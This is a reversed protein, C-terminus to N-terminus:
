PVRAPAICMTVRAVSVAGSGDSVFCLDTAATGPRVREAVHRTREDPVAFLKDPATLVRTRRGRVFAFRVAFRVQALSAQRYHDESVREIRVLEEGRPVVLVGGDPKLLERFREVAPASVGGGIYIRDYADDDDALEVGFADGHVFTLWNLERLAEVAACRGSAFEVLSAHQEVGHCAGRSTVIAAVVHSLYGTGSGLNLFRQGPKLDLAELVQAYLHPASLHFKGSLFPEDMYAQSLYQAPVFWGRDVLKLARVVHASREPNLLHHRM